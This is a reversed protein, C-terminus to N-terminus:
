LTTKNQKTLNEKNLGEVAGPAKQHGFHKTGLILFFVIFFVFFVEIENNTHLFPASIHIMGYLNHNMISIIAGM